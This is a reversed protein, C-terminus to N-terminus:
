HVDGEYVFASVMAAVSLNFTDSYLYGPRRMRAVREADITATQLIVRGNPETIEINLVYHPAYTKM